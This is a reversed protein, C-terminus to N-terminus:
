RPRKRRPPPASAAPAAAAAAPPTVVAANARRTAVAPEATRPGSPRRLATQLLEVARAHLRSSWSKSLGLAAGAEELTKDEFYYLEILRREKDPLTALASRLAGAAERMEMREHPQPSEDLISEADQLSLSTIFITAVGSLATALDRVEDELSRDDDSGSDRFMAAGAEREALNALYAATREDVRNRTYEGRPLWGMRRLGDFIAGRVRYYAYTTFTAGHNTDFREAAELLGQTGYSVLEEFEIEKPLQEKVKAAIARVYALNDAVLQQRHSGANKRM